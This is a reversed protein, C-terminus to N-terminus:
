KLNKYKGPLATRLWSVLDSSALFATISEKQKPSIEALVANFKEIDLELKSLPLDKDTEKFDRFNHVVNEFKFIVIWYIEHM